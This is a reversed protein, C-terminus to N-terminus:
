SGSCLLFVFLSCFSLLPYTYPIILSLVREGLDPDWIRWIRSKM